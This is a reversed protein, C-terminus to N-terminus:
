LKFASFIAFYPFFGFVPLINAIITIDRIAFLNWGNVYLFIDITKVNVGALKRDMCDM